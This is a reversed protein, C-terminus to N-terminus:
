GISRIWIWGLATVVVALVCFVVGVIQSAFGIRVADDGERVPTDRITLTDRAPFRRDQAIRKGRMVLHLGLAIDCAVILALLVALMPKITAVLSGTDLQESVHRLWLEFAVVIALLGIAAASVALIVRHRQASDARQIEM